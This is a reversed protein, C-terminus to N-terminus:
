DLQGLIPSFEDAKLWGKKKGDLSRLLYWVMGEANPHSKPEGQDDLDLFLSEGPKVKTNASSGDGAFRRLPVQVDTNPLATEPHIVIVERKLLHSQQSSQHTAWSLFALLGVWLTLFSWASSKSLHHPLLIAFLTFGGWIIFSLALATGWTHSASFAPDTSSEVPNQIGSIEQTFSLNTAFERDDPRLLLAKRYHLVSHGYKELKFYLNALNGHLNASHGFTSAELYLDVANRLEGNAEARVAEYFLRNAENGLLPIFAFTVGLLFKLLRTKNM